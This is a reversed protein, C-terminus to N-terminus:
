CGSCPDTERGTLISKVFIDVLAVAALVSAQRVTPYPFRHHINVVTVPGETVLTELRRVVSAIWCKGVESLSM